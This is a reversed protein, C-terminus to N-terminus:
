ALMIQQRELALGLRGEAFMQAMVTDDVLRSGQVDSRDAKAQRARIGPTVIRSRRGPKTNARGGTTM